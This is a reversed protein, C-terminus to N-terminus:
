VPSRFIFQNNLNVWSLQPSRRVILQRSSLCASYLSRRVVLATLFAREGGYADLMFETVSKRQGYDHGLSIQM